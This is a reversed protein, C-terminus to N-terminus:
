AASSGIEGAMLESEGSRVKQYLNIYDQCMRRSSFRKEFVRRIMRRDLMDIRRVADAAADLSDVIYGTIQDDVVEPVSGMRYAIVPTGCAMAEIMVLGFPEQWDILFVLGLADGLFEAKEHEGIEGLYEVLSHDLLSRIESDFYDKDVTDIKAAIKLPIGVRKALEIARDVRKEPSIRGLFALYKGKDYSPTYLREPLGHHVTGVWSAWSMPARQSDSISVINMDSFERFLPHIDTLDLRGHLTTLASVGVRRTVPFHLYDIHFHLMEFENAEQAVTELMRIHHALPDVVGKGQLRLAKECVPRLDALTESDASAYLTVEHGQRVLEDTLYSVIRETGGYLTPPVSEYLPAIQAIKM